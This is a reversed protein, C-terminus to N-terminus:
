DCVTTGNAIPGSKWRGSHMRLYVPKELVRIRVKWVGRLMVPTKSIVMGRNCTFLYLNIQWWVFWRIAYYYTPVRLCAFACFNLIECSLFLDFLFLLSFFVCLFLLLFVISVFLFFVWKTHWKFRASEIAFLMYFSQDAASKCWDLPSNNNLLLWSRHSQLCHSVYRYVIFLVSPM